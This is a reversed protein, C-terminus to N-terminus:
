CSHKTSLGCVHLDLLLLYCVALPLFRSAIDSAFAIDIASAIAFSFSFVSASAFAIVLSLVFDFSCGIFCLLM